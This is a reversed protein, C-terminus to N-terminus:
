RSVVIGTQAFIRLAFKDIHVVSYRGEQFVGHYDKFLVFFLHDGVKIFVFLGYVGHFAAILFAM